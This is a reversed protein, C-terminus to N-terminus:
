SRMLRRGITSGTTTSTYARGAYRYGLLVWGYIAYASGGARPASSRVKAYGFDVHGNPAGRRDFSPLSLREGACLAIPQGRRLIAEVIGGGPLLRTSSRPLNWLLYNYHAVRGAPSRYTRGPDGYNSWRAGAGGSRGANRREHLEAPTKYYMRHLDAGVRQPANRVEEGCDAVAAGNGNRASPALLGVPHALASAPVHVTAQRIVCPLACGGRRVYTREGGIRLAQLRLVRLEGPRCRPRSGPEHGAALSFPLRAGDFALARVRAPLVARVCASILSARFTNNAAAHLRAGARSEGLAHALAAAACAAVLAGVCASVAARARM